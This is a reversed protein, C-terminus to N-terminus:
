EWGPGWVQGSLCLSSPLPRSLCLELDWPVHCASQCYQGGAKLGRMHSSARWEVEWDYNIKSHVLRALPLIRNQVSKEGQLHILRTENQTPGMLQTPQTPQGSTGTSIHHLRSGQVLGKTPPCLAEQLGDQLAGAGCKWEAESGKM